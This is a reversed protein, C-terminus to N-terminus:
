SAFKVLLAGQAPVTLDLQGQKLAATGVVQDLHHADFQWLTGNGQAMLASLNIHALNNKQRNQNTVLFYTNGSNDRTTIALLDPDSSLSQYTPRCGQLARIGMRVAYYDLKHTGKYDILGWPTTGYDYLSFIDSGYVYDDGPRSGRILNNLLSVGMLASAYKDNRAFSGWETLWIPYDTKGTANLWSHAQRTYSTIDNNYNHIDITNFAEPAQKLADYPWTSGTNTAPAFIHYTQTPLYTKYVYDIADHTVRLFQIYQAQTGSWGQRPVNPENHVEFDNVDYHNRVNLWYVTAFVHEWWENWDAQTQPPNPSWSPKNSTERNRLTLLPRIGAAKLESFLTRANGQWRPSEPVWFYDSGQPPNTMANDWAAWNIVNPDAKIQTITPYGYDPSDDQPEWRAMGGYIHYTNIGLDKLDAIDFRSSGEVAGIYCTSKGWQTGKVTINSTTQGYHEPTPITTPTPQQAFLSKGALYQNTLIAMLSSLVLLLVLGAVKLRKSWSSRTM